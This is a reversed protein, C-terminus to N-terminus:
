DKVETLAVLGTLSSFDYGPVLFEYGTSLEVSYYTRCRKAFMGASRIHYAAYQEDECDAEQIWFDVEFEEDHIRYGVIDTLPVRFLEQASALCLDGGNLFAAVSINDYRDKKGVRVTKDGARKYHFPLIEVTTAGEPVGLERAAEAAAAALRDTAATFDMEAHQIESRNMKQTIRRAMFNLVICVLLLGIDVAHLIPSTTYWGRGEALMFFGIGAALFLVSVVWLIRSRRTLAKEEDTKEAPTDPVADPDAAHALLDRVRPSVHAALYPNSDFDLASRSDTKDVSFLNNM